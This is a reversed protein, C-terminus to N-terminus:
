RRWHGATQPGEGGLRTALYSIVLWVLAGEAAPWFPSQITWDRASVAVLIATM